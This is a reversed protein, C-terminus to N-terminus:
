KIVTPSHVPIIILEPDLNNVIHDLSKTNGLSETGSSVRFRFVDSYRTSLARSLTEVFSNGAVLIKKHTVNSSNNRLVTCWESGRYVTDTWNIKERKVDNQYSKSLHYYIYDEDIKIGSDNNWRDGFVQSYSQGHKVCVGQKMPIDFEGSVCDSKTEYKHYDNQSMPLLESNILADIILQNGNQTLHHEDKFYILNEPTKHTLLYESVNTYQIKNKSYQKKDIYEKIYQNLLSSTNTCNKQLSFDCYVESKSPIILILVPAKWRNSLDYAKDVLNFVSQKSFKPFDRPVWIWDDYKYSQKNTIVFNLKNMFSIKIKNLLSRLNFRDDFWSEFNKGYTENVTNNQVIPKYVALMRNETESKTSQYDIKSAPILITIAVLIILAVNAYSTKNNQQILLLKSVALFLLFTLFIIAIALFMLQSNQASKDFLGSIWSGKLNFPKVFILYPDRNEIRFSIEDPTGNPITDEKAHNLALDKPAHLSTIEKGKVKINKISVRSPRVQPNQYDGMDFRILNVKEKRQVPINVSVTQWENNSINTLVKRIKQNESFKKNSDLTYFVDLNVNKGKFGEFKIDYSVPVNYTLSNKLETCVCVAFILCIIFVVSNKVMTLKPKNMINESNNNM